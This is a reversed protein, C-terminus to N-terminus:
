NEDQIVFRDFGFFNVDFEPSDPHNVSIFLGDGTVFSNTFFYKREPFKVDAIVKFEENIVQIGFSPPYSNLDMLNENKKLNKVNKETVIMMNKVVTPFIMAMLSIQCLGTMGGLAM